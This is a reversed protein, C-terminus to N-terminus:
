RRPSRTLRGAWVKRPDFNNAWTWFDLLKLFGNNYTQQWDSQTFVAFKGPEKTSIYVNGTVVGKNEKPLAAAYACSQLKHELWSDKEPLRGCTKFDPLLMGSSMRLLLDVRGAYGEGVVIKETWLVKGTAQQWALVPEIFASLSKDWERGSLASQLADHIQIGTDRAKRSEQDQVREEHLIRHVFDDLAEGDNQKSTLIALCAQEVKWDNLAPKDLLNIIRGVSPLLNLKRADALSPIKMGSGDKKPLEYCPRGDAYYWHATGETFVRAATTMNGKTQRSGTHLLDFFEKYTRPFCAKLRCGRHMIELEDEDACVKGCHECKIEESM